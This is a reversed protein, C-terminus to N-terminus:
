PKTCKFTLISRFNTAEVNCGFLSVLKECAQKKTYHPALFLGKRDLVNRVIWDGIRNEGKIYFCGCFLGGTKLVRFVEAFAQEKDPFAQFGNMSLVADFRNDEFPLNGADGRILTLNKLGVERARRKAIELMEPSYDLGTIEANQMRLYKEATFVATGVPLDLITGQFEDPIMDLVIRAIKNDDVRWFIHMYIWSWWTQATLVDDYRNTLETYANKQEMRKRIFKFRSIMRFVTDYFYRCYVGVNKPM